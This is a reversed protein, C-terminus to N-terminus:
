DQRGSLATGVGLSLYLSGSIYRQLPGQMARGGLWHRLSGALLAYTGDTILALVIYILGLLLIQQPIPGRTPDVFQPLFALFFVAIKPNHLSVLVGNMFLRHSSRPASAAMGATPDRGVANPDGPLDPLRCGNSKVVGFAAASALLVASIGAAVPRYGWYRYWALEVDRGSVARWSM